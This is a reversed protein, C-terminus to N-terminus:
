KVDYLNILCFTNNITCLKYNNLKESASYNIDINEKFYRCPKRMLNLPIEKKAM